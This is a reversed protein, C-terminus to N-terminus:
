FDFLRALERAFFSAIWDVATVALLHWSFGDVLSAVCCFFSIVSYSFQLCSVTVFLFRLFKIAATSLIYYARMGIELVSATSVCIFVGTRRM